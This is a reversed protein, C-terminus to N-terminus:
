GGSVLCAVDGADEVRGVHRCVDQQQRDVVRLVRRDRAQGRGDGVGVHHHEGIRSPQCLDAMRQADARALHDVTLRADLREEETDLARRAVCPGSALQGRQARADAVLRTADEDAARRRHLDHALQDAAGGAGPAGHEHDAFRARPLAGDGTQHVIQGLARRTGEHDRAAIPRRGLRQLRLQEAGLPTAQELRGTSAREHEVLHAGQRARQARTEDLRQGVTDHTTVASGAARRHVYADHEGNAGGVVSRRQLRIIQEAIAVDKGDRQRGEALPAAVDRQEDAVKALAHRVFSLTTLRRREARFRHRCEESM